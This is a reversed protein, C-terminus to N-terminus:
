HYIDMCCGSFWKCLTVTITWAVVGAGNGFHQLLQGHLLGLAMELTNCYIDMCCGSFWKWLTLVGWAVVGTLWKGLMLLPQGHLFM